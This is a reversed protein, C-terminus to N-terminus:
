GRPIMEKQKWAVILDIRDKMFSLQSEYWDLAEKTESDPKEEAYIMDNWPDSREIDCIFARNGIMIGIDDVDFTAKGDAIMKEVIEKSDKLGGGMIEKVTKVAHLKGDGGSSNPKYRINTLTIM